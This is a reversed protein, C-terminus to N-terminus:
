RFFKLETILYSQKLTLLTFNLKLKGLSMKIAMEWFSAVSVFSKSDPYNEIAKKAKSSLQNDANAFWILTHTDLLLRM